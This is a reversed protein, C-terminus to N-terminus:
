VSKKEFHAIHDLRIRQRKKTQNECNTEVELWEGTGKELYVNIAKAQIEEGTVLSIKLLNHHMCALEYEDYIGCAIPQYEEVLDQSAQHQNAKCEENNM